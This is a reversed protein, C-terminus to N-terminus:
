YFGSAIDKGHENQQKLTWDRTMRTEMWFNGSKRYVQVPLGFLQLLLSELESVTMNDSLRIDKELLNRAGDRVHDETHVNSGDMSSLAQHVTNRFELKLFPYVRTFEEQVMGILQQRVGHSSKM